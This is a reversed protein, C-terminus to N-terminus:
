KKSKAKRTRKKVVKEKKILAIELVEEMNKVPIFKM